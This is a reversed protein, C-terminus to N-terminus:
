HKINKRLAKLNAPGAWLPAFYKRENEFAHEDDITVSQKIAGIVEPDHQILQNLWKQTEYLIDHMGDDLVHDCLKLKVAEESDITRCSLLIELARSRGVM